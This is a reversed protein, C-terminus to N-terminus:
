KPHMGEKYAVATVVTVRVVPRGADVRRLWRRLQMRQKSAEEAPLTDSHGSRWEADMAKTPGPPAVAVQVGEAQQVAMQVRGSKSTPSCGAGGGHVGGRELVHTIALGVAEEGEVGGHFVAM